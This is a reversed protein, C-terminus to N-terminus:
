RVAARFALLLMDALGDWRAVLCLSSYAVFGDCTASAGFVVLLKIGFSFFFCFFFFLCLAFILYLISGCLRTALLGKPLMYLTAVYSAFFLIFLSLLVSSYFLEPVAEGNPTYLFALNACERLCRYCGQPGRSILALRFLWGNRARTYLAGGFVAGRGSNQSATGRM